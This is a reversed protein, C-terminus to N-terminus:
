CSGVVFRCCGVLLLKCIAYNIIVLHFIGAGFHQSYCPFLCLWFDFFLDRYLGFILNGFCNGLRLKPVNPLKARHPPMQRWLQVWHLCFTPFLAECLGGAFGFFTPFLPKWRTANLRCLQGPNPEAQISGLNFHFDPDHEVHPLKPGKPTLKARLTAWRLCLMPFMAWCSTDDIRHSIFTFGPPQLIIPGAAMDWMKLGHPGWGLNSGFPALKPGFQPMNSRLQPWTPALQTWTPGLNPGQQGINVGLQVATASM